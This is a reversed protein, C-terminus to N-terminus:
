LPAASAGCQGPGRHNERRLHLRDHSFSIPQSVSCRRIYIRVIPQVSAETQRPRKRYQRVVAAGGNTERVAEMGVAASSVRILMDSATGIM